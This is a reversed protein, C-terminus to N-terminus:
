LTFSDIGARLVSSAQVLGRCHERCPEHVASFRPSRRAKPPRGQWVIQTFTVNFIGHRASSSCRNQSEPSKFSTMASVAQCVRVTTFQTRSNQPKFSTPVWLNQRNQITDHIWKLIYAKLRFNYSPICKLRMDWGFKHGLLPLNSRWPLIWTQEQRNGVM